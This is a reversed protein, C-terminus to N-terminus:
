LPGMRCIPGVRMTLGPSNPASSRWCTTAADFAISTVGDPGTNIVQSPEVQQSQLDIALQNWIFILGNDCGAALSRGDATLAVCRIRGRVETPALFCHGSTPDILTLADQNAALLRQSDESLCFVRPSFPLPIEEVAELSPLACRALFQHREGDQDDRIVTFLYREDASFALSENRSGTRLRAQLEGVSNHLLVEHYRGATALWKGSTSFAASEVSYEHGTLALLIEGTETCRVTVPNLGEAVNQGVLMRTGDKSIAISDLQDGMFFKKEAKGTTPNWRHVTGDHGVSVGALRQPLLALERAENAHRTLVQEAPPQTLRHLLWM